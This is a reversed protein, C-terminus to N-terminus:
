SFLNYGVLLLLKVVLDVEKFLGGGREDRVAVAECLFPQM